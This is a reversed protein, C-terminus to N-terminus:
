HWKVPLNCILDAKFHYWTHPSLKHVEFSIVSYHCWSLLFHLLVVRKPPRAWLAHGYIYWYLTNWEMLWQQYSCTKHSFIWERKSIKMGRESQGTDISRSQWVTAYHQNMRCLDKKIYIVNDFIKAFGCLDLRLICNYALSHALM